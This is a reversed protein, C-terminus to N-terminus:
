SCALKKWERPTLTLIDQQKTSGVKRLIDNFYDWPNIGNLKCTGILSYMCAASVAGGESGAFLWNHRGVAIPRIQREIANNDLKLEPHDLFLTLADWQVLTYNIANKLKSKPLVTQDMKLLLIKLNEIVARSHKDRTGSREIKYLQSIAKLVADCDKKSCERVELFKRRAHAWCGVRKTKEPLFVKNYGAYLDTQVFGEYQETDSIMFLDLATRGSRSSNYDFFLDGEASLLGWLWGKKDTDKIKLSTEDAKIYKSKLIEKRLAEAIPILYRETIIGIWDSMRQKPIGIGHRQFIVEQRNLPLHDAYKSILIHSMLGV